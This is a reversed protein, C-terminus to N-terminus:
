EGSKRQEKVTSAARRLRRAKASAALAAEKKQIAEQKSELQELRSNKTREEIVKETQAATSKAARHRQSALQTATAKSSRRRKQAQQRKRKATSAAQQRRREAARKREVAQQDARQSRLEAEARLNLAREREDAAERRIEADEQLEQDGLVFGVLERTRADARDLALKVATVPRRDGGIVLLGDIPLRILRLSNGIATRSFDRLMM